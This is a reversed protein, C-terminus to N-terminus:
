SECHWGAPREKVVRAPVGVATTNAPVDRIVVSGAGVVSWAGVHVKEIICAGTGINAGEELRVNGSVHVGPALTVFDGVAVDHGVTCDLNVIVNSGIRIQNTLVCGATIISGEGLTVWRTVLAAPHVVSCFRVEAGLAKDVMRRRIEPAGVACIAEVEQAHTRLWSFDGLVPRGNVLVGPLLYEPDVVFGLVDFEDGVANCADFVDLVERAFGGAGLIVVKRPM